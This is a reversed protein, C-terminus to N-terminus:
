VIKLLTSKVDYKQACIPVQWNSPPRCVCVWCLSCQTEIFLDGNKKNRHYSKWRYVLGFLIGCVPFMASFIQLLSIHPLQSM